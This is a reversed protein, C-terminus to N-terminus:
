PQLSTLRHYFDITYRQLSTEAEPLCCLHCSHTQSNQISIPGRHQVLWDAGRGLNWATATM